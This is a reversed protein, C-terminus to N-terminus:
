SPWLDNVDDYDSIDPAEDPNYHYAEIRQDQREQRPSNPWDRLVSRRKPQEPAPTPNLSSEHLVSRRKPQEPTPAPNLSSEHLVSRRKPQEPTPAPNLSSEHLISRRKPQEPTPAPNLSSEHLVSRRKPQEQTTPNFLREHPVSEGRNQAFFHGSEPRNPADIGQRNHPNDTFYRRRDPSPISGANHRSPTIHEEDTVGEAGIELGLGESNKHFRLFGRWRRTQKVTHYGSHEIQMREPAAVETEFSIPKKPDLDFDPQMQQFREGRKPPILQEDSSHPRSFELEFDEPSLEQADFLRDGKLVPLSKRNEIETPPPTSEVRNSRRRRTELVRRGDEAVVTRDLSPLGEAIPFTERGQM